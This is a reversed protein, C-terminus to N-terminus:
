HVELALTPSRYQAHTLVSHKEEVICDELLSEGEMLGPATQFFHCFLIRPGKGGDRAWRAGFFASSYPNRSLLQKSVRTLGVDIQVQDYSMVGCVM